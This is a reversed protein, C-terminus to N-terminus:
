LVLVLLSFFRAMEAGDYLDRVAARSVMLGACAGLSQALRAAWFSEINPALACAASAVIFLSLGFLVPKRRGFRDSVPGYVLHGVAMGLFFTSLTGQVSAPAVGYERALMPFAPLYADVALPGLGT